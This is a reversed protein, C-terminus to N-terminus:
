EKEAYDAVPGALTGGNEALNRLSVRWATIASLLEIYRASGLAHRLHAYAGERAVASRRDIAKLEGNAHSTGALPMLQTARFVDWNRADGLVDQLWELDGEFPLRKKRPFARRFTSVAARLRRVAVRMHHVGEVSDTRRIHAHGTAVQDMCGGVIAALADATRMDDHLRPPKCRPITMPADRRMQLPSRLGAGGPPLAPD